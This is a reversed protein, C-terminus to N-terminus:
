SLLEHFCIYDFKKNPYILAHKCMCYYSPHHSWLYLYIFIITSISISISISKSISISISIPSPAWNLVAYCHSGNFEMQQRGQLILIFIRDFITFFYSQNCHNCPMQLICLSKTFNDNCCCASESKHWLVGNQWSTTSLCNYLAGLKPVIYNRTFNTGSTWYPQSKSAHPEYM